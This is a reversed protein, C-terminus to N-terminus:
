VDAIRLVLRGCVRREELAAHAAAAEDLPLEADIEPVVAGSAIAELADRLDSQRASASGVLELERVILEGPSVSVLDTIVNGVVCIRGGAAMCRITQGLTVGATLDVAKEARLGRARVVESFTAAEAVCVHQAYRGLRAAKSRSSTVAIVEAGAARLIQVMHIGLGGSAGTVLVRQGSVPGLRDLAHLCSGVACAAIAAAADSVGDPVPVISRADVACRGAYGGPRAEGYFRADRCLTERDVRCVDCAGCTARPTTAVRRGPVLTPDGVGDGVSEIVGCIEHGLIAPLSTRPLYGNRALVDHGCVGCALVRLLVEGTGPRPEEWDRSELVAPPGFTEIVAARVACVNSSGIGVLRYTATM